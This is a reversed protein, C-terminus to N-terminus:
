RTLWRGFRRTLTPMVVYMLLAVALPALILFHAYLPLQPVTAELLYGLGTIVPYIALVTLAWLKWRKPAAAMPRATEPRTTMTTM